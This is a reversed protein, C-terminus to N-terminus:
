SEGGRVAVARRDRISLRYEIDALEDSTVAEDCEDCMAYATPEAALDMVLAGDWESPESIEGIFTPGDHVMAYDPDEVKQGCLGCLGGQRELLGAM